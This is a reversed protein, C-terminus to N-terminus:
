PPLTEQMAPSQNKKNLVGSKSLTLNGICISRKQCLMAMPMKSFRPVRQFNRRSISRQPAALLHRQRRLNSGTPVHDGAGNEAVSHRQSSPSFFASIMSVIHFYLIIEYSRSDDQLEGISNSINPCFLHFVILRVMLVGTRVHELQFSGCLKSSVRATAATERPSRKGSLWPGLEQPIDSLHWQSAVSIGSVLGSM